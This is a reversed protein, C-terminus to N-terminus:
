SLVIFVVEKPVMETNKIKFNALYNWLQNHFDLEEKVEEPNQNYKHIIMLKNELDQPKFISFAGLDCFVKGLGKFSIGGREDDCNKSLIYILKSLNNRLVISQSNENMKGKNSLEKLEKQKLKTLNLRNM